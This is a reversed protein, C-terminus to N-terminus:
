DSFDTSNYFTISHSGVETYTTTGDTTTSTEMRITLYYKGSEKVNAESLEDADLDLMLYITGDTGDGNGSGATADFMSAKGSEKTMTVSEWVEGGDKALTYTIRSIDGANYAGAFRVTLLYAGGVSVSRPEGAGSTATSERTSIDDSYGALVLAGASSSGLTLDTPVSEYSSMGSYYTSYLTSFDATPVTDDTALLVGGSTTTNLYGDYDLDMLAYFQLRYTTESSLGTFTGQYTTGIAHALNMDLGYKTSNETGELVKYSGDAQKEALRVFYYGDLSTYNVDNMRYSLKISTASRITNATQILASENDKLSLSSWCVADSVAEESVLKWTVTNDDAVTKKYVAARLRYANGPQIAGGAEYSYSMTNNGTEANTPYKKIETWTAATSGRGDEALVTTWDDDAATQYTGEGCSELAYLVYLSDQEVELVTSTISTTGSLSKETYSSTNGLTMSVGSLELKDLTSVLIKTGNVVSQFVNDEDASTLIGSLTLVVEAAGSSDAAVYLDGATYTLGDLLVTDTWNTVSYKEAIGADKYYVDIWYKTDSSLTLNLNLTGDSGIDDATGVMAAVPNDGKKATTGDLTYTYILYYLHFDESDPYEVLNWNEVVANLNVTVIGGTATRSTLSPVATKVEVSNCDDKGYKYTDTEMVELVTAVSYGSGSSLQASRTVSRGADFTTSYMRVSQSWPLTAGNESSVGVQYLSRGAGTYSTNVTGSSTWLYAAATAKTTTGYLANEQIANVYKLAYLNTQDYGTDSEVDENANEGTLYYVEMEFSIVDGTGYQLTSDQSDDLDSLKFQLYYRYDGDSSTPAVPYLWLEKVTTDDVDGDDNRDYIPTTTSGGQGNDTTVQATLKVAAIGRALDLYDSSLYYDHTVSLESLSTITPDEEQIEALANASAGLYVYVTNHDDDTEAELSLYDDESDYDTFAIYNHQVIALNTYSPDIDDLLIYDATLKYSGGDPSLNSVTLQGGRSTVAYDDAEDVVRNTLYSRLKNLQSDSLSEAPQTSSGSPDTEQYYTYSPDMTVLNSNSSGGKEEFYFTLEAEEQTETLMTEMADGSLLYYVGGIQSASSVMANSDRTGLISKWQIADDPDDVYILWFDEGGWSATDKETSALYSYVEPAQRQVSVVDSCLTNTKTYNVEQICEYYDEPYSFQTGSTQGGDYSADLEAEYAFVYSQGRYYYTEDLYYILVNESTNTLDLMFSVGTYNGSTDASLDVITGGSATVQDQVQLLDDANYFLLWVEPVETMDNAGMEVTIKIDYLAKGDEDTAQTPTDTSSIGSWTTYSFGYYTFTDTEYTEDGQYNTTLKLGAVTDDDWYVSYLSDDDDDGNYAGLEDNDMEEVKIYYTGDVTAESPIVYPYTELTMPASSVVGSTSYDNYLYLENVYASEASKWAYYDYVGSDPNYDMYDYRYQTYDYAAVAKITYTGATLSSQTLAVGSSDVFYYVYSDKGVGLIGKYSSAISTYTKYAGAGYFQEYLTNKGVTLSTSDDTITCYGIATSGKYLVFDISYLYRYAADTYELYDAVNNSNSDTTYSYGSTRSYNVAGSPGIWFYKVGISDTTNSDLATFALYVSRESRTNVSVTGLTVRSYSDGNKEYGYLTFMYATDAKLGTLDVQMQLVENGSLTMETTNGTNSLVTSSIYDYTLSQYYDPEASIQLEMPHDASVVYSNTSNVEAKIYGSISDFTIGSDNNTTDALDAKAEDATNWTSGDGVFSLSTKTIISLIASDWAFSYELRNSNTEYIPLEVEKEGDNYIYYARLYYTKGTHVADNEDESVEFYAVYGSTVTQTAVPNTGNEMDTATGYLEFRISEITDDIDEPSGYNGNDYEGLAEAMLYGSNYATLNVGGLTPENKLTTLVYEYSISRDEGVKVTTLDGNGDYSSVNFVPYFTVTFSQNAYDYEDSDAFASLDVLFSEFDEESSMTGYYTEVGDITVYVDVSEVDVLRNSTDM